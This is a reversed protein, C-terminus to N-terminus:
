MRTIGVATTAYAATPFRSDSCSDSNSVQHKAPVFTGKAVDPPIFTLHNFLYLSAPPNNLPFIPILVVSQFLAAVQLLHIRCCFVFTVKAIAFTL